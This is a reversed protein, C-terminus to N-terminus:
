TAAALNKRNRNPIIARLEYFHLPNVIFIQLKVCFYHSFAFLYCANRNKLFFLM